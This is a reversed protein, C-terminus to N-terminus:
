GKKKNKLKNGVYQGLGYGLQYAFLDEKNRGKGYQAEALVDTVKNANKVTESNLFDSAAKGGNFSVKINGITPKKGEEYHVESKVSLWDNLFNLSPTADLNEVSSYSSDLTIKAGGSLNYMKPMGFPDVYYNIDAGNGKAGLYPVGSVSMKDTNYPELTEDIQEQAEQQSKKAEELADTLENSYVYKYNGPSGTRKKYKHDKWPGSSHMIYM